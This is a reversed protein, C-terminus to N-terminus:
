YILKYAESDSYGAAILDDYVDDILADVFYSNVSNSNNSNYEAIRSYVDDALAEDYESKSIYNQELMDGLVKSRRKANDEPHHDPFLQVTHTQDTSLPLALLDM